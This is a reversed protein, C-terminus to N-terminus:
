GGPGRQMNVVASVPALVIGRDALGTAWLAVREITSPYPLGIGIAAGRATAIRELEKLQDDIAGRSLDRDIFRDVRGHPVDAEAALAPGQSRQATGPDIYLLGRARLTDIVPKMAGANATFKGGSSSTIGVYGVARSLSWLLRETNREATLGGLLANPGPDNRPFGEPEMPLSLLIEHGAARANEIWTDLREGYPVFALSVAGPLRQLANGTTVGSVGMDALILAIRPRKDGVPFPRAYAQWPKVGNDGIRPLPGNRTDEVLGPFPAPALALRADPAAPVPAAAPPPAPVPAATPVPPAAPSVPAPAPATAAPPEAPAAAAVPPPPAPASEAPPAGGIVAVTSHPIAGARTGTTHDANAMLWGGVGAVGLGLLSWAVALAGPRRRGTGASPSGTRRRPWPLRPLGKAKLRGLIATANM